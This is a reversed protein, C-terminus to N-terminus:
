LEVSKNMTIQEFVEEWMQTIKEISFRQRAEVARSSLKKRMNEDTMLKKM